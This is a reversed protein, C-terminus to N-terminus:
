DQIQFMLSVLIFTSSLRHQKGKKCTPRQGWTGDMNCRGKQDGKLLYGDKCEYIINCGAAYRSGEDGDRRAKWKFSRPQCDSSEGIFTINGFHM